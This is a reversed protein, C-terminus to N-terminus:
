RVRRPRATGKILGNLVLPVLENGIREISANESGYWGAVGNAMGLIALTTLRADVNERFEGTRM